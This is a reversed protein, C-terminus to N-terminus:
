RFTIHNCIIYHWTRTLRHIVLFVDSCDRSRLVQNSALLKTAELMAKSPRRSQSITFVISQLKKQEKFAQRKRQKQDHEPTFDTM